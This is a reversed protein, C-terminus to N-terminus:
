KRIWELEHIVDENSHRTFAGSKHRLFRMTQSNIENVGNARAIEQADQFSMEAFGHSPFNEQRHFLSGDISRVGLLKAFLYKEVLFVEDTMWRVGIYQYFEPCKTTLPLANYLKLPFQCHKL